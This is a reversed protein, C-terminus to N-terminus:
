REDGDAPLAHEPLKPGPPRHPEERWGLALEDAPGVDDADALLVHIVLGRDRRQGTVEMVPRAEQDGLTM